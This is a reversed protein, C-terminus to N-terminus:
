FGRYVCIGVVSPVFGRYLGAIGDSKLTQKYVDLLGKYQREGGKSKADASL